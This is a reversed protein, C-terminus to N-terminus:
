QRINVELGSSRTVWWKRFLSLYRFSVFKSAAPRFSRALVFFDGLLIWLVWDGPHKDIM